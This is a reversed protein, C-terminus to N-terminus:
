TAIRYARVALWGFVGVIGAVWALSGAVGSGIPGGLTLHRLTDVWITVPNVKVVPQLWGPLTSIPVFATSLFTLPFVWALGITQVTEVDRLALGIYAAVASLALGFLLALLVAAVLEIPGTHIRWGIAVGVVVMLLLILFNEATDFTLRGVLVASRAVPMARFRDVIGGSVDEALGIATSVTGFAASLVLIGPMLYDVYSGNPVPIAGGFLYRFLLVIMLPEVTALYLKEPSRKVHVFNRKAMLGADAVATRLRMTPSTPISSESVTM